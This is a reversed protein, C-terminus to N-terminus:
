SPLSTKNKVHLLVLSRALSISDIAKEIELAINGVEQSELNVTHPINAVLGPIYVGDANYRATYPTAHSLANRYNDTVLCFDNYAVELTAILEKPASERFLKNKLKKLKKGKGAAMLKRSAELEMFQGEYLIAVVQEELCLFNWLARGLASIIEPHGPTRYTVGNTIFTSNLADEM